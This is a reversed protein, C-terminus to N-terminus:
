DTLLSVLNGFYVVPLLLASNKARVAVVSDLLPTTAWTFLFSTGFWFLGRWLATVLLVLMVGCLCVTVAWLLLGHEVHELTGPAADWHVFFVVSSYFSDNCDRGFKNYGAVCFVVVM